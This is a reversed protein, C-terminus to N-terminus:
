VFKSRKYIETRIYTSISPFAVIVFSLKGSAVLLLLSSSCIIVFCVGFIFGCECVSFLVVVFSGSKFLWYFLVIKSM